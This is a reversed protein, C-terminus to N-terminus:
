QLGLCKVNINSKLLNRHLEDFFPVLTIRPIPKFIPLPLGTKHLDVYGHAPKGVGLEMSYASILRCNYQVKKAVSKLAGGNSFLRKDM